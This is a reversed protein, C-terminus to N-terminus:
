LKGATAPTSASLSRANSLVAVCRPPSSVPLAASIQQRANKFLVLIVREDSVQDMFFFHAECEAEKLRRAEIPKSVKMAPTKTASSMVAFGVLPSLLADPVYVFLGSVGPVSGDDCSVPRVKARTVCSPTIM